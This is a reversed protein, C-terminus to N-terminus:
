LTAPVVKAFKNNFAELATKGAADIDADTFVTVDENYVVGRKAVSIDVTDGVEIDGDLNRISLDDIVMVSNAAAAVALEVGAADLISGNKMTATFTVQQVDHTFGPLDSQVENLVVQFLSLDLDAM